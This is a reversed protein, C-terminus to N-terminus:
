DALNRDPLSLTFRSGRGPGDSAATLRGSHLRAISQSLFLGIGSGRATMDDSIGFEM